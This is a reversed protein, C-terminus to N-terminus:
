NIETQLIVCYKPSLCVSPHFICGFAKLFTIKAKNKKKKKEKEVKIVKTEIFCFLHFEKM